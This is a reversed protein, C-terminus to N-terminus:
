AKRGPINEATQAARTAASLKLMFRMRVGAPLQRLEKVEGRM